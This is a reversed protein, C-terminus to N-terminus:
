VVSKRDQMGGYGVAAAIGSAADNLSLRLKAAATPDPSNDYIPLACTQVGTVDACRTHRRRSSFCFILM